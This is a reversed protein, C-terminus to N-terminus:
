QEWIKKVEKRLQTLLIVKDSNKEELMLRDILEVCVVSHKLKHQESLRKRHMEKWM